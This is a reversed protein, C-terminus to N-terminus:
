LAPRPYPGNPDARSYPSADRQGRELRSVFAWGNDSALGLSEQSLRATRSDRYSRLGPRGDCLDGTCSAFSHRWRSRKNGLRVDPTSFPRRVRKPDKPPAHQSREFHLTIVLRLGRLVARLRHTRPSAFTGGFDPGALSRAHISGCHTANSAQGTALPRGPPPKPM